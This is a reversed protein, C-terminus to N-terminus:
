DLIFIDEIRVGFLRAMRFALSLSPDHHGREIANINNRATGLKRALEDQTLNNIARFVRLTNKM